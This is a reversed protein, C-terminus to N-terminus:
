LQHTNDIRNMLEERRRRKEEIWLHLTHMEPDHVQDSQNGDEVYVKFNSQLASSLLYLAPINLLLNRFEILEQDSFHVVSAKEVFSHTEKQCSSVRTIEQIIEPLRTPKRIYGIVQEGYRRIEHAYVVKGSFIIIPIEQWSSKGRIYELIEWGSKPKMMLDLLLYDPVFSKLKRETAPLDEAVEVMYGATTLVSQYTERILKDDDM